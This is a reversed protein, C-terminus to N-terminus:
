DLVVWYGADGSAVDGHLTGVECLQTATDTPKTSLIVKGATASNTVRCGRLGTNLTGTGAIVTAQVGVIAGPGRAARIYYSTSTVAACAELAVYFKWRKTAAAVITPTAPAYGTTDFYLLAGVTIATNQKTIIREQHATTPNLIRGLIVAPTSYAKTILNDTL